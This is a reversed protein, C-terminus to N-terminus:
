AAESDIQSLRAFTGEDLFLDIRGPRSPGKADPPLVSTWKTDPEYARPDLKPSLPGRSIGWEDLTEELGFCLATSTTAFVEGFDRMETETEPTAFLVDESILERPDVLRPKDILGGVCIFHEFHGPRGPAIMVNCGTVEALLAAKRYEFISPSSGKVELWIGLQPLWFDPVYAQPWSPDASVVQSFDFGQPEYEYSLGSAALCSAWHAETISRYRTGWRILIKAQM